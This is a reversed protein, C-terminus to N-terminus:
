FRGSEFGFGSALRITRSSARIDFSIALPRNAISPSSSSMWEHISRQPFTFRQHPGWTELLCLNHAFVNAFTDRHLSPLHYNEFYTDLTYKWNSPSHVEDSLLLTAKNLADSRESPM